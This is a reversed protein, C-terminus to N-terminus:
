KEKVTRTKPNFKLLEKVTKFNCKWDVVVSETHQACRWSSFDDEETVYYQTKKTLFKHLKVIFKATASVDPMPPGDSHDNTRYYPANFISTHGGSLRPCMVHGLVYAVLPDVGGKRIFFNTLRAIGPKEAINRIVCLYWFLRVPSLKNLKIEFYLDQGAKIKKPVEFYGPLCKARKMQDLFFIINDGEMDLDCSRVRAILRSPHVRYTHWIDQWTRMVSAWCATNNNVDGVIQKDKWRKEYEVHIDCDLKQDYSCEYRSDCMRCPNDLSKFYTQLYKYREKLDNTQMWAAGKVPRYMLWHCRYPSSLNLKLQKIGHIWEPLSDYPNRYTNKKSLDDPHLRVTLKGRFQCSITSYRSGYRPPYIALITCRKGLVNEPDGNYGVWSRTQKLSICYARQGEKWDSM